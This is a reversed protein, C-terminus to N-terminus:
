LEYNFQVKLIMDAIERLAGKGGKATTCLDVEAKIYSPADAVTVSLGVKKLIPLDILDDGLYVIQEDTLQLQQLLQQYTPVKDELNQFLYQIKLDQMRKKTVEANCGTLVGVPMNNAQLLKIGYGDHVNFAKFIKGEPTYYIRGDTLVGDVDTIVMKIKKIKELIQPDIM